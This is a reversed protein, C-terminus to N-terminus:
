KTANLHHGWQPPASPDTPYGLVKLAIRGNHTLTGNRCGCLEAALGYGTAMRMALFITDDIGNAIDIGACPCFLGGARIEPDFAVLHAQVM